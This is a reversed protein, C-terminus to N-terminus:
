WFPMQNVQDQYIQHRLVAHGKIIGASVALTGLAAGAAVALNIVGLAAALAIMSTTLATATLIFGCMSARSDVDDRAAYYLRDRYQFIRVALCAVGGAMGLLGVGGAVPIGISKTVEWSACPLSDPCTQKLRDTLSSSFDM